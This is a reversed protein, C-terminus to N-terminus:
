NQQDPDYHTPQTPFHRNNNGFRNYRQWEQNRPRGGRNFSQWQNGRRPRDRWNTDTSPASASAASITTALKLDELASSSLGSTNRQISRFLQATTKNFKNQVVLSSYEDQLYRMHAIQVTYLHDFDEPSLTKELTGLVKISTEAYRASKALIQLAQQDERRIGQRSDNLRLDAPLKVKSVADKIAAYEAQVDIFNNETKDNQKNVTKVNVEPDHEHEHENAHANGPNELDGRDGIIEPETDEKEQLKEEINQLRANVSDKEAHLNNVSLQIQALNDVIKQINEAVETADM